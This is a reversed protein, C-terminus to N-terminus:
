GCASARWLGSSEQRRVIPFEMVHSWLRSCLQAGLRKACVLFHRVNLPCLESLQQWIESFGATQDKSHATSTHHSSILYTFVASHLMCLESFSRSLNDTSTALFGCCANCFIHRVAIRTYVISIVLGVFFKCLQRRNAYRKPATCSCFAARCDILVPRTERANGKLLLAAGSAASPRNVM